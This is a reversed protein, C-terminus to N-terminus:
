LGSYYVSGGAGGAFVAKDNNKTNKISPNRGRIPM